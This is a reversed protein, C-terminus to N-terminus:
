LPETITVGIDEDGGDNSLNTQVVGVGCDHDNFTRITKAETLEM